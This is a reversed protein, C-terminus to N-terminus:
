LTFRASFENVTAESRRAEVALSSLFLVIYVSAPLSIAEQTYEKTKKM